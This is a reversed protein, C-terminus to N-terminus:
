IKKLAKLIALDTLGIPNVMKKGKALFAENAESHYIEFHSDLLQLELKSFYDLHSIVKNFSPIAALYHMSLKGALVYPGIKNNDILWRLYDKTTYTQLELCEQVINKITSMFHKYINDLKKQKKLHLSFENLMTTSSLCAEICDENIGRSIVCYKFYADIDFHNKNALDAFADLTDKHQKYLTKGSVLKFPPITSRYPNQWARYYKFIKAALEGDFHVDEGSSLNSILSQSRTSIAKSSDLM